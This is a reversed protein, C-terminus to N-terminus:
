EKPKETCSRELVQRYLSTLQESETEQCDSCVFVYFDDRLPHAM